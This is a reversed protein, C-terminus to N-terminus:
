PSADTIAKITSYHNANDLWAMLDPHEIQYLRFNIDQFKKKGSNIVDVIVMTDVGKETLYLLARESFDFLAYQPLDGAEEVEARYGLIEEESADSVMGILRPKSNPQGPFYGDKVLQAVAQLYEAEVPDKGTQTYRQVYDLAAEGNAELWKAQEVDLRDPDLTGDPLTAADFTKMYSDIWAAPTGAKPKEENRSPPVARFADRRSTSIERRTDKWEGLVKEGDTFRQNNAAIRPQYFDNIEAIAKGRESSPEPIDEPHEARYQREFLPDDRYDAPKEYGQPIYSKYAEALKEDYKEYETMPSVKLGTLAIGTALPDERGIDSLSFPALARLWYEPDDWKAPDGTFTKGEVLDKTISVLPSAKTRLFYSTDGEVMAVVGRLLSDWPGFVSIDQGAARIRMFNSDRPDFVTESGLAENAAVTTVVGLGILKLLAERAYSGELGGKTLANAVLEIQSQFFRPAFLAVEGLEGGFRRDSYGTSRNIVNSLDRALTSEMDVGARVYNEYANSYMAIREVDGFTSFAQNSQKAIPLNQLKHGALQLGAGITFETDGGALHLGNRIMEQTTPLGRAVADKNYKVIYEGLASEDGMAKIAAKLAVGYAEPDKTAGILGQIGLFSVDATARTSRILSNVHEVARYIASKKGRLQGSNNLVENVANVMPQEFWHQELGPLAVRGMGRPATRLADQYKPRISDLRAEAQALASKIEQATEAYAGGRKALDEARRSTRRIAGDLFNLREIDDPILADLAAISREIRLGSDVPIKEVVRDIARPLKALDGRNSDPLGLDIQELARDLEDAATANIGARKEATVLKGRLAAVEKTTAEYATRLDADVLDKPTQGFPKLSDALWTNIARQGSAHAYSYLADPAKPYEYRVVNGSEDIFGEIGQAQTPFKAPKEFSGKGGRRGVERVRPLEEVGEITTHGRPIYFGGPKIDARTGPHKGVGQLLDNYPELASRLTDMAERQTPNLLIKYRGFDAAVDAITPNGQINKIRGTGDLDFVSVVYDGIAKVNKAQREITRQASDAANMLPTVVPDLETGLRLNDKVWKQINQKPTLKYDPQVLGTLTDGEIAPTGLASGKPRRLTATREGLRSLAANGAVVAAAGGLAWLFKEQQSADDPAAMYGAAGGVTAQLSTNVLPRVLGRGGAEGAVTAPPDVDVPITSFANDAVSPTAGQPASEVDPLNRLSPVIEEPIDESAGMIPAYGLAWGTEPDIAGRVIPEPRPTISPITTRGSLIDSLTESNALRNGGRIAGYAGGGALLGGTLSAAGTIWPNDTYRAALEGSKESGVLGATGLATEGALRTAFNGGFASGIIPVGSGAGATFITAPAAAADVAQRAPFYWEDPLGSTDVGLAGLTKEGSFLMGLEQTGPTAGTPTGGRTSMTGMGADAQRSLDYGQRWYDYVDRAAGPADGILDSLKGLFGGGGGGEARARQIRQDLWGGEYQPETPMEWRTNLTFTPPFANATPDDVWGQPMVPAPTPQQIDFTPDDVFGRPMSPFFQADTVWSGRSEDWVKGSDPDRWAQVSSDWWNGSNDLEVGSPAAWPSITSVPPTFVTAAPGYAQTNFGTPTPDDVWGRPMVPAPSSAGWLDDMTGWAFAPVGPPQPSAMPPQPPAMPPPMPSGAVPPTAPAGQPQPSPFQPAPAPPPQVPPQEPTDPDYPTGRLLERAKEKALHGKPAVRYDRTPDLLSM